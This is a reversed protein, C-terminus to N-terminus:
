EARRSASSVLRRWRQTAVTGVAALQPPQDACPALESYLAEWSALREIGLQARAAVVAMRETPADKAHPYADRM